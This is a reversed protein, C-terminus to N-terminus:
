RAVAALRIWASRESCSQSAATTLREPAPKAATQKM